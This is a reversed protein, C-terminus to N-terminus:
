VREIAAEGWFVTEPKGQRNQPGQLCIRVGGAKAPAEPEEMNELFGEFMELVQKCESELLIRPQLYEFGDASPRTELKLRISELCTKRVVWWGRKNANPFRLWATGSDEL